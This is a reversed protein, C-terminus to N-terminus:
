KPDKTKPLRIQGQLTQLSKSMEKPEQKIRHHKSIVINCEHYKLLVNEEHPRPARQEAEMKYLVQPLTSTFVNVKVTFASINPNNMTPLRTKCCIFTTNFNYLRQVSTLFQYSVPNPFVYCPRVVETRSSWHKMTLMGSPINYFCSSEM